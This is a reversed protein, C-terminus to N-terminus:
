SNIEDPIAENPLSKLLEARRNTDALVYEAKKFWLTADEPHFTFIGKKPAPKSMFFDINGMFPVFKKEESGEYELVLGQKSAARVVEYKSMLEFYEESIKNSNKTIELIQDILEDNLKKEKKLNESLTEFEESIKEYRRFLEDYKKEMEPINETMKSGM